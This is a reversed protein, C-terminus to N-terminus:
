RRARVTEHHIVGEQLYVDLVSPVFEPGREAILRYQGPRLEIEFATAVFHHEARKDYAIVGPPTQPAGSADTLYFRAAVAADGDVERSDVHLCATAAQRAQPTSWTLSLGATALLVVRWVRGGAGAPCSAIAM